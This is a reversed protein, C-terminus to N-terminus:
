QLVARYFSQPASISNTYSWGSTTLLNTALPSWTQLDSCQELVITQGAAGLVVIQQQAPNLSTIELGPSQRLPLVEVMEPAYLYRTRGGGTITALVAYGGPAANTAFLTLNTTAFSVSSSGNGPVTIRQLLTENTNLANLDADLYISITALDASARAWQYYFRVAMTEGHIVQNTTVRNFKVLNPWNGNNVPLATRNNATGAGLDWLQNYGDSVPPFGAGVPRDGSARDGGGMLSYHFGAFKGQLEYATWWTQRESSTISAETYGAPVRWDITGHYWLHVDSHSATTGGYGGDLNTLKRVYAGGVPKGYVIANLNQWYNDHFLVNAYTNAPADVASYLFWDFPFASDNLPHPDLTTVHDIWVGNTGLLRSMECVLSGGRSHGILHMPLEALARGGLEPIFNTSLLAPVVASAVDYTDYSNGDALQRWDLKVVIEGSGSALPPSGSERQAALYYSGGSSYFYMEYTTFERGSFRFYNTLQNAMGSIWGDVNGNLGHTILTVGGARACPTLSVALGAFAATILTLIAKNLDM